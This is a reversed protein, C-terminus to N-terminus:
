TRSRIMFWLVIEPLYFGLGGGVVLSTLGNQTMGWSFMGYGGGSMLGFVLMSIKIALFISPAGPSNYGANAMRVKLKNAELETTPKLAKSLAPAAKELMAGMGSQKEDPEQAKNRLTLDRLEELREDARSKTKSFFSILAWAGFAFGIFMAYPLLAEFDM